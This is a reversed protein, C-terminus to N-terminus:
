SFPYQKGAGANYLTAREDDTLVRSWIGVLDLLCWGPRGLGPFYGMTYAPNSNKLASPIAGVDVSVTRLAGDTWCKMRDNGTQTGDFIVVVHHWAGGTLGAAAWSWRALGADTQCFMRLATSAAGNSEFEWEAPSPYTFRALFSNEGSINANRKIWWSWSAKTTLADFGAHDPASLYNAGSVPISVANGIMGVDYSPSGVPVMTIGNLGKDLRNGSTEDLDHWCVLGTLLSSAGAAKGVALPGLASGATALSGLPM